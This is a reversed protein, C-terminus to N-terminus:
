PVDQPNMNLQAEPIHIEDSLWSRPPNSGKQTCHFYITDGAALGSVTAGLVNSSRTAELIGQDIARPAAGGAKLVLMDTHLKMPDVTEHFDLRVSMQYSRLNDYEEKLSDLKRQLENQQGFVSQDQQWRFYVGVSAFLVGVLVLLPAFAIKITGLKESSFDVPNIAGWRPGFILAVLILAVGVALFVWDVPPYSSSMKAEM